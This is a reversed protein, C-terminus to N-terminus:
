FEEELLISTELYHVKHKSVFLYPDKFVKPTLQLVM